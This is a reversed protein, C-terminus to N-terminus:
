SPFDYIELGVNLTEQVNFANRSMMEATLSQIQSSFSNGYPADTEDELGLSALGVWVM